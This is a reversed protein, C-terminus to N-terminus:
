FHVNFYTINDVETLNCQAETWGSLMYPWDVEEPDREIDCAYGGAILRRATILVSRGEFKAKIPYDTM